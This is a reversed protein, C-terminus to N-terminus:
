LLRHAKRRESMAQMSLRIMTTVKWEAGGWGDLVQDETETTMLTFSIHKKLKIKCGHSWCKQWKM